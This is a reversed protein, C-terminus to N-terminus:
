EILGITTKPSAESSGSAEASESGDGAVTEGGVEVDKSWLSLSLIRIKESRSAVVRVFMFPGSHLGAM